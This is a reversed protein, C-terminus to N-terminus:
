IVDTLLRLFLYTAWVFDVTELLSKLGSQNRAGYLPCFDQSCVKHNNYSPVYYLIMDMSNGALLNQRDTPGPKSINDIDIVSKQYLRVDQVIRLFLCSAQEVFLSNEQPVPM